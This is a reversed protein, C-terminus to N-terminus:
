LPNDNTEQFWIISFFVSTQILYGLSMLYFWAVLCGFSKIIVSVYLFGFSMNVLVKQYCGGFYLCSDLIIIIIWHKETMNNLIFRQQFYYYGIIEFSAKSKWLSRTWSHSIWSVPFGCVFLVAEHNFFSRGWRRMSFRQNVKQLTTTSNICPFSM